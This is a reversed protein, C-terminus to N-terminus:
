DLNEYEKPTVGYQKQFLKIFYSQSQVGVLYCVEKVRFGGEQLLQAAKQMRMYNIFDTPTSNVTAKMKRHLSSRSMNSLDALREVNFDSDAMNNNIISVLQNLFSEEAKNMGSQQVPVFPKQLFLEIIRQRNELLSDLRAQLYQFSFPKEIYADVGIKFAKIKSQTDNKASLLVVIIHSHEINSKIYEGLELGDMEPMMVDSVVIDVNKQELVKMAEIGNTAHEVSYDKSLGDIIFGLLDANDEVVLVTKREDGHQPAPSESQTSVEPDLTEEINSVEQLLPIKLTFTNLQQETSFALEGNHLETLSHALSLGIGSGEVKKDTPRYQFFPEFIKSQADAPILAGDNSVVFLFHSKDTSLSINIMEDSYKVANSLLNNLIKTLSDKDIIAYIETEAINYIVQKSLQGFQPKYSSLIDKLLQSVNIRRFRMLLKHNNIRRFDLLQNTLELLNKANKDILSLNRRMSETPIEETMIAELPGNILTVPTKIEHAIDTFFNVKAEYLEREKEVEFLRQREESKKKYFRKGQVFAVGAILASFIFYLLYATGSMWWPPSIEIELSTGDNNWVGDNNSGKVMFTYKGPSLGAYSVSNNKATYIWDHDVGQMKYAFRNSQPAVFSLSAFEFTVNSQNHKLRVKKTYLINQTLTYALETNSVYMKTIHIPPIFKNEHFDDPNFAILGKQNGMYFRGNSSALAAKYNFQNSLLGEQRTFVRINNTQPNFRVLGKNTGFWLNHKRDELVKYTVDDPLGDKVSYSKFSNTAKDFSVLGGRDTSFWLRGQHDETICSVSNSSLGSGSESTYHTISENVPNYQFVGSGMTAIWIYGDKDEIIDFVFCLGFEKMQRFKMSYDNMVCVGWTTGAWVRGKRDEYLVQINEEDLGIESPSYYRIRSGTEQIVGLGLNFYAAWIDSGVALLGWVKNHQSSGITSFEKTQPNFMSIGADDTGIWINGKRDEKVEKIYKSKISHQEQTPYYREFLSTRNPLYSIGGTNTGIWIGGEKDKYIKNVTNGSLSHNDESNEQINETKGTQVDVIYIGIHTGIWLENDSLMTMCNIPSNSLEPIKFESFSKKRKDFQFLGGSHIGLYIYDNDECISYIWKGELSVGESENGAYQIFNDELHNYLFLGENTSGVWIKGDAGIFICQPANLSLKFDKVVTYFSLKQEVPNYRFLGQNPVVIWVNGDEDQRIDAVWDVICVGNATAVDFSAIKETVPDHRFVGKDTGLWLTRDADEFIASINNNGRQIDSDYCDYVSFSIGDYRNLRNLTGFWIFGQSDQCVSKVSNNSLGNEADIRLFHYGSALGNFSFFLFAFLLVFIRLM